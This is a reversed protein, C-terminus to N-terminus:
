CRYHNRGKQWYRMRLRLIDLGCICKKMTVKCRHSIIFRQDDLLNLMSQQKWTIHKQSKPSVGSTLWLNKWEVRRMATNWGMKMLETRVSPCHWNKSTASSWLMRKPASKKPAGSCPWPCMRTLVVTVAVYLRASSFVLPFPQQGWWGRVAWTLRDKFISIKIWSWDHVSSNWVIKKKRFAINQFMDGARFYGQWCPKRNGRWRAQPDRGVKDM